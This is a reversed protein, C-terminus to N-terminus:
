GGAVEAIKRETEQGKEAAEKKQQEATQAEMLKRELEQEEQKAQEAQFQSERVSVGANQVAHKMGEVINEKSITIDKSKM